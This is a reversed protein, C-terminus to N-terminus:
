HIFITYITNTQAHTHSHTHMNAHIDTYVYTDIYTPKYIFLYVCTCAHLSRHICAHIWMHMCSQANIISKFQPSPMQPWQLYLYMVLYYSVRIWTITWTDELAAQLLCCPPKAQLGVWPWQSHCCQTHKKIKNPEKQAFSGMRDPRQKITNLLNIFASSLPFFLYSFTYKANNFLGDM